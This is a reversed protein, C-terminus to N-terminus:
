EPAVSAVPGRAGRPGRAGAGEALLDAIGTGASGAGLIVFRQDALRSGTVRCPPWCPPWPSPPPGRSTMTSRACVTATATWCGAPTPRPSIRGSSCCGPCTGSWRRCSRRSSTTTTRGASAARAALRPLAPRGAAGPQQHGRGARDAADPGPRHRRVPHVAGAQRGSHGHRGRGPRRPRSHARRRDRRDRGGARYPRNELIADMAQRQPYAIFLGRPRRYIHSYRQCVDGVEPTYIM